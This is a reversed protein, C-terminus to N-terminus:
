PKKEPPLPAPNKKAMEDAVIQRLERKNDAITKALLALAPIGEIYGKASKPIHILSLVRATPGPLATIVTQKQKLPWSTRSLIKSRQAADLKLPEIIKENDLQDWAEGVEVLAAVVPAAEAATWDPSEFGPGLVMGGASAVAASEPGSALPASPLPDVTPGAGFKAASKAARKNKQYEADRELDAKRAAESGPVLGDKRPRGGRLGGVAAVSAKAQEVNGAPLAPAVAAPPAPKGPPTSQVPPPNGGPAPM